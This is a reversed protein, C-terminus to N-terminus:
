AVMPGSLVGSWLVGLVLTISRKHCMPTRLIGFFVTTAILLAPLLLFQKMVGSSKISWILSKMLVIWSNKLSNSGVDFNDENLAHLLKLHYPKLRLDESMIRYTSSHNLRLESALRRTSTPESAERASEVAERVRQVNEATRVAKTRKRQYNVSGYQRFVKYLHHFTSRSINLHPKKWLTRLKTLAANPVKNCSLYAELIDTKEVQSFRQKPM